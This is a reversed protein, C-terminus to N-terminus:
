DPPRPYRPVLVGRLTNLPIISGGSWNGCRETGPWWAVADEADIRRGTRVIVVSEMIRVSSHVCCLVIIVARKMCLHIADLVGAM